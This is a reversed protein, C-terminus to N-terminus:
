LVGKESSKALNEIRSQLYQTMATNDSKKELELLAQLAQKDFPNQHVQNRAAQIEKLSPRNTAVTTDKKVVTLDTLFAQQDQPAIERLANVETVIVSRLDANEWSKQLATQWSPNKWFQEVKAKAETSKAQYPTAQASLLQMYQQQEEDSLGNPMPASILENYFRETEKALMDVSVLQSTWDGTEIAQKAFGELKELLASRQKISAALKRDNKTDLKHSTLSKKFGDFEKLFAVRGL